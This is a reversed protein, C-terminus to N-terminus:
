NICKKDAGHFIHEIIYNEIYENATQDENSEEESIDLGVEEFLIATNMPNDIIFNIRLV